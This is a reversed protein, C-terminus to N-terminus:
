FLIGNRFGKGIFNGLQEVRQQYHDDGETECGCGSVSGKDFGFCSTNHHEYICTKSGSVVAGCYNSFIVPFIPGIQCGLHFRTM